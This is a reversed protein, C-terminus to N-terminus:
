DKLKSILKIHEIDSISKNRVFKIEQVYEILLGVEDQESYQIMLQNGERVEKVNYWCYQSLRSTRYDLESMPLEEAYLVGIREFQSAPVFEYNQKTRVMARFQREDGVAVISKATTEVDRFQFIFEDVLDFSSISRYFYNTTNVQGLSLDIRSIEGFKTWIVDVKWLLNDNNKLKVDRDLFDKASIVLQRFNIKVFMEHGCHGNLKSNILEVLQQIM